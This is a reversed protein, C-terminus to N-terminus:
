PVQLARGGTVQQATGEGGEPIQKKTFDEM